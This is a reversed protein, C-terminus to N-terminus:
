LLNNIKIIIAIIIVACLAIPLIITWGLYLLDLYKYRPLMARTLIFLIAILIIKISFILVSVGGIFPILWGGLFLCVFSASMVLMNSYEGLFFMAFTISSYEVNYGAVLEAEAEPLDFPTRNTEALCSIYFLIALPFLPFIFWINQQARVIDVLNLSSSLLVIPIILLGLSVEYSIMQAASRLAGLFAYKSNSSWGAFIIGFVNLSSIAFIYLLSVHSNYITWVIRNSQDSLNQWINIFYVSFSNFITIWTILQNNLSNYNFYLQTDNTITNIIIGDKVTSTPLVDFNFPIFIWNYLSLVFLIIPASIFLFSNSGRPILVEKTIAKLGDALPQLLGWFGVINPGRRRQIAAMIKREALTYYAIAILLCIINLLFSSLSLLM